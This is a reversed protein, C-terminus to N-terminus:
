QSGAIFYTFQHCDGKSWEQSQGRRSQGWSERTPMGWLLTRSANSSWSLELQLSKLAIGSARDCDPILLLLWIRCSKQDIKAPERWFARHAWFLETEGPYFNLYTIIYWYSIRSRVTGTRKHREEFCWMTGLFFLCGTDTISRKLIMCCRFLFWQLM